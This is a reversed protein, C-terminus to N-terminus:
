LGAFLDTERAGDVGVLVYHEAGMGMARMEEPMDLFMKTTGLQTRHAALAAFKHDLFAAVDVITTIAEDDTGIREVDDASFFDDGFMESGAQLLSRPFASHYVKPVDCLEAAAMAARHTHIHDPHGYGGYANYTVLVQPEIDRLVDVIRSVVEDLDQRVFARPADNAPTGDMGSDHYGLMRLDVAGLRRCAEQLEARRVEGLRARIDEVSGLEPVEAIEGEEGNTCTILCVNVGEDSYRAITGGNSLSEDDPHAHVFVIRRDSM